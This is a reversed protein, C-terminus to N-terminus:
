RRNDPRTPDLASGTNGGDDVIGKGWNELQGAFWTQDAARLTEIAAIQERSLDIKKALRAAFTSARQAYRALVDGVAAEVEAASVLERRLQGLKMAAIEEDILAKRDAISLAPGAPLSLGLDMAMQGLMESKQREAEAKDNEKARWAAIAGAIDIEYADGNSGRKKLWDCDRQDKLWKRLTPESALGTAVLDALNGLM